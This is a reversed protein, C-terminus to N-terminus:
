KRWLKNQFANQRKRGQGSWNRVSKRKYNIRQKNYIGPGIFTYRNLIANRKPNITESGGRLVMEFNKNLCLSQGVVKSNHIVSKEEFFCAVSGSPCKVGFCEIYSEGLVPVSSTLIDCRDRCNNEIKGGAVLLLNPILAISYFLIKMTNLVSM